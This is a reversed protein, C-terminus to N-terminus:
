RSGDPWIQTGRGYRDKGAWWGEYKAGNELIRWTKFEKPKEEYERDLEETFPFPGRKNFIIDVINNTYDGEVREDFNKVEYAGYKLKEARKAELFARILAQATVM